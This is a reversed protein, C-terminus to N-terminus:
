WGKQPSVPFGADLDERSENSLTVRPRRERLLAQRVTNTMERSVMKRRTSSPSLARSGNPTRPRRSEPSSFSAVNQMASGGDKGHIRETLLSHRSVVKPKARPFSIEESSKVTGSHEDCEEDGTDEWEYGEGEEM